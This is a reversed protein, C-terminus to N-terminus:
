PLLHMERLKEELRQRDQPSDRFSQILWWKGDSKEFMFLLDRHDYQGNELKRPKLQFQKLFAEKDELVHAKINEDFAAAYAQAEQLSHDSFSAFRLEVDENGTLSLDSLQRLRTPCATTCGPFGCYVLQYKKASNWPLEVEKRGALPQKIIFFLLAFPSVLLVFAGLRRKM